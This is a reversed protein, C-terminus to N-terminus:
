DSDCRRCSVYSGVVRMKVRETMEALVEALPSATAAGAVEVLFTYTWPVGVQKCADVKLVDLGSDTFATLLKPLDRGNDPLEFLLTTKIEGHGATPEGPEHALVLFRTYNDPATQIDAALVSMGYTAAAAASAIAAAGSEGSEKVIKVAGATDYVEVQEVSDLRNLFEQCQALAQAHSLVRTLATTEVGEHGILCHRVQLEIEGVIPLTAHRLLDWVPQINGALSNDVPAIGYHSQGSSVAAFLTEFTPCSQIAISHDFFARAAVESFAGREGQIAVRRTESDEETM